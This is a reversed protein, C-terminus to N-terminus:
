QGELAEFSSFEANPDLEDDQERDDKTKKMSQDLKM